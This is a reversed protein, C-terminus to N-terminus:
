GREGRSSQEEDQAVEQVGQFLQLRAQRLDPEAAMVHHQHLDEIPLLRSERQFTEPTELVHFTSGGHIRVGLNKSVGVQLFQSPVALFQLADGPGLCAVDDLHVAM